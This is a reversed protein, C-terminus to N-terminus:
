PAKPVEPLEIVGVVLEFYGVLSWTSASTIRKVGERIAVVLLGKPAFPNDARPVMMLVCQEAKLTRARPCRSFEIALALM